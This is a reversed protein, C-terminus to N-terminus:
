DPQYDRKPEWSSRERVMHDRGYPADRFRALFVSVRELVVHSSVERNESSILRYSKCVHNTHWMFHLSYESFLESIANNHDYRHTVHSSSILFQANRSEIELVLAEFTIV